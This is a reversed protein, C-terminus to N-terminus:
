EKQYAADGCKPCKITLAFHFGATTHGNVCVWTETDPM